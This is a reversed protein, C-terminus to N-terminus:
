FAPRNHFLYDLFFRELLAFGSSDPSAFGIPGLATRRSASPGSPWAASPATPSLGRMQRATHTPARHPPAGAPLSGSLEPLALCATPDEFGAGTPRAKGLTAAEDYGHM